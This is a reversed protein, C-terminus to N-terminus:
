LEHNGGKKYLEEIFIYCNELSSFYHPYEFLYSCKSLEVKKRVTYLGIFKNQNIFFEQMNNEILKKSSNM